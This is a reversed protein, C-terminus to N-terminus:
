CDGVWCCPSQMLSDWLYKTQPKLGGMPQGPATAFNGLLTTSYDPVANIPPQNPDLWDPVETKQSRCYTVVAFVVAATVAIWVWPPAGVSAKAGVRGVGIGADISPM